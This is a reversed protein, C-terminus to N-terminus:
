RLPHPYLSAQWNPKATGNTYFDRAHQIYDSSSDPSTCSGEGNKYGFLATGTNGWFYLPESDGAYTQSDNGAAGTVRGFGVQRPCPYQVGPNNAGFCPNPGWNENLNLAALRFETIDTWESSNINDFSNGTIAGTGGRLYLWWQNNFSDAGLNNFVFTNTYLELHRIGWYSSDAGHSTMGANNFLNNRVVTRSNNDFDMCNIFAHFDNDEIYLCNTQGVDNTGMKSLSTWADTQHAVKIGTGAVSFPFSLFSNSWIIGQNREVLINFTDEEGDMEFYNDHIKVPKGSGNVTIHHVGAGDNSWLFRIGTIEVTHSADEVATIMSGNVANTYTITTQPRTGIVWIAHTGSGGTSTIDMTLTSGSYSTVTGEMWLRTWTRGSGGQTGDVDNGPREIRLTTGNPLTLGSQTTFVKSGTGIAISTLSRGVIRGAGAGQLKIGKGTITVNNSWTFSGAPITVTDGDSAAAIKAAVDGSSGNSDLAGGGPAPSNTITVAVTGTSYLSGDGVRFTFWDGGAVGSTYTVSSGTLASLSGNTPSTIITYNTQPGDLDYSTLTLGITSNTMMAVAQNTAVPRDNGPNPFQELNLLTVPYDNTTYGLGANTTAFNVTWLMNSVTGFGYMPTYILRNSVVIFSPSGSDGGAFGYAGSGSLINDGRGVGETTAGRSYSLANANANTQQVVLFKPRFTATNTSYGPRGMVSAHSHDLIAMPQITAPLPENFVFVMLDNYPNSFDYQSRTSVARRWHQGNTSDVFLFWYNTANNTSGGVPASFAHGCQLAAVRSVLTCRKNWFPSENTQAHAIATFGTMGYFMWNTNWVGSDAMLGSGGLYTISALPMVADPGPRWHSLIHDSASQGSASPSYYGNTWHTRYATLTAPRAPLVLGLTVLSLVLWKKLDSVPLAGTKRRHLIHRVSGLRNFFQLGV